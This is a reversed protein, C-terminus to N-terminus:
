LIQVEEHLEVGFTERVRTKIVNLVQKLETSTGGGNNIIFNAHLPSISFNGFTKGKLGSKDILYGASKTPLSFQEKEVDTINRFFCGGTAVGQPQTKKRYDLAEKSRKKLVLPDNKTFTFIGEIFLEHTKQLVSYDYAFQFYKKPVEKLNSDNTLILGKKLVDGVYCEPHMWKSNMFIAGGVTGPLGMHYELGELGNEVTEKVLRSLPYGSSIKMDVQNEGEHVIEKKQYMNRIVLGRYPNQLFAVNSGGGLLVYRKSLERATKLSAVLENKSEPQVFYDAVTKIRMTTYPTLDKNQEIRLGTKDIFQQM